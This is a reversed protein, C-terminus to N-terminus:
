DAPQDAGWQADEYDRAAVAYSAEEEYAELKDQLAALNALTTEDQPGAKLAEIQDKLKAIKKELDDLYGVDNDTKPFDLAFPMEEETQPERQIPMGDIPNYDEDVATWIIESGWEKTVEGAENKEVEVKIVTTLDERHEKAYAIAETENDFEAYLNNEDVDSHVVYVFESM